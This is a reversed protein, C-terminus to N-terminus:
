PPTPSVGLQQPLALPNGYVRFSKIKGGENLVIHTMGDLVVKRHTPAISRGDWGTLPGTHTGSVSDVVLVENGTVAVSKASMTWDPFATYNEKLFSRIAERGSLPTDQGPVQFVADDAYQEVIKDVDRTNAIAYMDRADRETLQTV